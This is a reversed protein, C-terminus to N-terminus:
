YNTTKGDKDTTSLIRWSNSQPDFTTEVGLGKLQPYADGLSGVISGYESNPIRLGGIGTDGADPTVGGDDFPIVSAVDTFDVDKVGFKAPDPEYDSKYGTKADFPVVEQEFGGSVQKERTGIKVSGDMVGKLFSQPDGYYDKEQGEAFVEPTGDNNFITRGTMRGEGDEEFATGMAANRARLVAM